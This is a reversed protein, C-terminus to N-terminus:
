WDDEDNDKRLVEYHGNTSELFFTKESSTKWDISLSKTDLDLHKFTDMYPYSDFTTFRLSVSLVSQEQWSLKKDGLYIHDHYDYYYGRDKAWNTMIKCDTDLISYCRDMYRNGNDLNWLLARAVLKEEGEEDKTTMILMSVAEKNMCYIDFFHQKYKSAMCSNGLEGIRAKYNIENYWYRIDEGSVEKIEVGEPNRISKIWAVVSTVFDAIDSDKPNLNSNLEISIDGELQLKFRYDFTTSVGLKEYIISELEDSSFRIVSKFGSEKLATAAPTIQRFICKVQVPEETEILVEKEVHPARQPDNIRNILKLKLKQFTFLMTSRKYFDYDHIFDDLDLDVLMTSNDTAINIIAKVQAKKHLFKVVKSRIKNVLKGIRTPMSSPDYNFGTTRRKVPIFSFKNIDDSLSIYNVDENDDYGNYKNLYSLLRAVNSHVRLREIIDFIDQSARLREDINQLFRM